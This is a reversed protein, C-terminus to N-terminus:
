LYDIMNIIPMLMLIFIIYTRTYNIMYKTEHSANILNHVVLYQLVGDLVSTLKEAKFVSISISIYELYGMYQNINGKIFNISYDIIYSKRVKISM